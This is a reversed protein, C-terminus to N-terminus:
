GARLRPATTDGARLRDRDRRTRDSCGLTRPLATSGARLRYRLRRSRPARPRLDDACVPRGPHMHHKSRSTAYLHRCLRLDAFRTAIPMQPSQTRVQRSPFPSAAPSPDPSPFPSALAFRREMGTLPAACSGQALVGYRRSLEPRDPHRCSHACVRPYRRRADPIAAALRGGLWGRTLKFQRLECARTPMWSLQVGSRLM